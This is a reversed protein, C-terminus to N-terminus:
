KFISRLKLSREFGIIYAIKKFLKGGVISPKHGLLEIRQKCISVLDSYKDYNLYMFLSYNRVLAKKVKESNDICCIYKEYLEFSHLLSAAKIKSNDKSVSDSLGSRYFVKADECFIISSSNMLVRAFFEGDQNKALKENWGGSIEILKRAVLWVSTQMMEGNNWMDVLFDIPNDYNNYIFLHPFKAEEINNYFRDWKCSAIVKYDLGILSRLQYEIKFKSLLDDADLYMIYDGVSNQFGVNRAKCAGQNNQRILKIKSDSFQNVIDITSDTSGDDVIIIEVNKWSQDLVSVITEKIYQASNFCPIIVSVLPRTSKNM